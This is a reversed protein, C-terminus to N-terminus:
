FFQDLKGWPVPVDFDQGLEEFKKYTERTKNIEEPTYKKTTYNKKVVDVALKNIPLMKSANNSIQNIQHISNVLQNAALPTLEKSSCQNSRFSISKISNNRIIKFM